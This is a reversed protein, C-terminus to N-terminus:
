EESSYNYGTGYGYGYSYPNGYRRAYSNRPNVTGNLVMSMSPYANNEYMEDITPLMALNLVGARIVFLTHDAYKSIITSDAVVEVPPCDIFIYDYHLKLDEILAQLREQFLLETPNPPITGVPILVMNPTDPAQHMISTIDSVRGALYDAVGTTPKDIYASMSAKRMDLDIIAVRKGKIAFSKALNYGVFTKGSGPNASTLMVVRSTADNGFMFELNTRLVRFAENISNRSNEKVSVTPTPHKSIRLIDSASPLKQKKSHLPLEGALPIQMDAIDKRGRVVSVTMERQFLLLSPIALGILLGVLMITAKKPAIPANSGDAESVIRTNYSTFAQNLQNEERKQLLYLYLSEKVKQQREVSLLYKAQQPNSAIKSTATSSVGEQTRIQEGLSILENDISAILAGRLANLTADLEQVLPNTSSSQSVLSNRELIKTNYMAIQSSLASNSLGTSTPLLRHNNESNRLYNKIYKAMYEENRLDKLTLSAQSAQNVYMSAAANVDPMLNASKFSSIDNEVSGLEEHLLRVREDIFKSSKDAMSRKDNMWRDGYAVIITNLIDEARKPSTDVIKLEVLNWISNDNDIYVRGALSKAVQKLPVKSVNIEMQTDQKYAEGPNVIVRGLRTKVPTGIHGKITTEGLSKGDKTIDSITYKGNGELNLVFSASQVDTLDPLTVQVPLNPGYLTNDHFRGPTSYNMDLNLRQAVDSMLRVSKMIQLEDSIFSNTGSKIGLDELVPNNTVAMKSMDANLLMSASKEYVPVTKMMYIYACTLCVVLSIVFWSWHEICLYLFEQIRIGGSKRRSAKKRPTRPAEAPANENNGSKIEIETAM